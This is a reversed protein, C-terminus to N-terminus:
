LSIATWWREAWMPSITNGMSICWAVKSLAVIASHSKCILNISLDEGSWATRTNTNLACSRSFVLIVKLIMFFIFYIKTYFHFVPSCFNQFILHGVELFRDVRLKEKRPWMWDVFDYNNIQAAHTQLLFSSFLFVMNYRVTLLILNQVFINDM